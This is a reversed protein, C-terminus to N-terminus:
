LVVSKHDYKFVQLVDDFDDTCIEQWHQGILHEQYASLAERPQLVYTPGDHSLEHTKVM